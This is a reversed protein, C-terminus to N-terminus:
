RRRLYDVFHTNRLAGPRRERVYHIVRDGDWGTLHKLALAAVFCSRNMGMICTVLVPKRQLLLGAVVKGAQDALALEERTPPPGSDDLPVSLVLRAPLTRPEPQHERACLVVVEFPDALLRERTVANGIYLGHGLMWKKPSPLYETGIESRAPSASTTKMMTM